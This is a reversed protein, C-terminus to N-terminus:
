TKDQILYNSLYQEIKLSHMEIEQDSVRLSRHLIFPDHWKMGCLEASQQWPTLLTKMDFKNYGEPSYAEAPGGATISLLFDKGALKTGKPGYAWGSAWVEDLWQKMLSPMSYWYFPHQVFLMDHQSLLSQECDIDIQFDPYLDYLLRTTVGSHNKVRDAILRNCHSHNLHPHAVIFLIKKM